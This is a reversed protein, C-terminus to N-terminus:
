PYQIKNFVTFADEGKTIPPLSCSARGRQSTTREPAPLSSGNHPSWPSVTRRQPAATQVSAIRPLTGRVHDSPGQDTLRPVQAMQAKQENQVEQIQHEQTSVARLSSWLGRRPPTPKPTRSDASLSHTSSSRECTQPQQPLLPSGELGMKQLVEYAQARQLYLLRDAQRQVHALHAKQENAVEQIRLKQRDM